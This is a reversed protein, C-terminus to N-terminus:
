LEQMLMPACEFTTSPPKFWYKYVHTSGIPTLEMIYPEGKHSTDGSKLDTMFFHYDILTDNELPKQTSTALVWHFM